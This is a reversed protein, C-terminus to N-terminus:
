QVQELIAQRDIVQWSEFIKDEFVRHVALAQVTVSNGSGPVGFIDGTHTGTLNGVVTVMGDDFHMRDIQFKADPMGDLLAQVEYMHTDRDQPEQGVDGHGLWYDDLVSMADSFARVNLGEYYKEVMDLAREEQWLPSALDEAFHGVDPAASKLRLYGLVRNDRKPDIVLIEGEYIRFQTLEEINTYHSILLLPGKREPDGQWNSIREELEVTNPAGQLSLLLNLDPDTEVPIAEAAEADVDAYGALLQNVTQQNRCWQSVVIKAPHIKNTGLLRGFDRMQGAGRESLIRQNACDTPAVNPEDRKAWNTPGHRMLYVVDGRFFMDFMGQYPEFRISDNVEYGDPVLAMEMEGLSETLQRVALESEGSQQAYTPRSAAVSFVSLALLVIAFVRM